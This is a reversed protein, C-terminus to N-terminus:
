FVKVGVRTHHAARAFERVAKKGVICGYTSDAFGESWGRNRNDYVCYTGDDLLRPAQHTPWPDGMLFGTDAATWPPEFGDGLCMVAHAGGTPAAPTGWKVVLMIPVDRTADRLITLLEGLNAPNRVEADANFARMTNLVEPLYSGRIRFDNNVRNVRNYERKFADEAIPRDILKSLFTTACACTCSNQEEQSFVGQQFGGQGRVYFNGGSREDPNRANNAAIMAERSRPMELAIQAVIREVDDLACGRRYRDSRQLTKGKRELKALWSEWAAVLPRKVTLSKPNANIYQVVANNLTRFSTSQFYKRRVVRRWTQLTLAM